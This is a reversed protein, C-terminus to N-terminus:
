VGAGEHIGDLLLGQAGDLPGDYSWAQLVGYVGDGGEWFSKAIGKPDQCDRRFCEALGWRGGVLHLQQVSTSYVQGGVLAIWMVNACYKLKKHIKYTGIELLSWYNDILRFDNIHNFILRDSDCDGEVVNVSSDQPLPILAGVQKLKKNYM